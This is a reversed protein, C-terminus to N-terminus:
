SPDCLVKTGQTRDILPMQGGLKLAQRRWPGHDGPLMVRERRIPSPIHHTVKGQAQGESVGYIQCFDRKEGGVKKRSRKDRGLQYSRHGWEKGAGPQASMETAPKAKFCWRRRLGAKRWTHAWDSPWTWFCKLHLLSKILTPPKGPSETTFFKGTLTPSQFKIGQYPLDRSYSISVWKLISAQSIGHASSGLLSCDIPDFITPSSKDVLGCHCCILTQPSPHSQLHSSTSPSHSWPLLFIIVSIFFSVASTVFSHYGPWTNM